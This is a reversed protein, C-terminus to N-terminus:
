AVRVVPHLHWTRLQQVDEQAAKKSSYPGLLLRYWAGQVRPLVEVKVAFGATNLRNVLADANTKQSLTAVQILYRGVASPLAQHLTVPQQPEPDAKAQVQPTQLLLRYFDLGSFTKQKKALVTRLDSSAAAAKKLKAHKVLALESAHHHARIRYVVYFGSGVLISLCCLVAVCWGWRRSVGQRRPRVCPSPPSRAYDKM